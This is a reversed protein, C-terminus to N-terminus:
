VGGRGRGIVAVATVLSSPFPLLFAHEAAVKRMQESDGLHVGEFGNKLRKLAPLISARFPWELSKLAVSVAGSVHLVNIEVVM